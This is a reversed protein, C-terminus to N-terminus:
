TLKEVAERFKEGRDFENLFLGFSAAGPSLLVVDGPGALNKARIVAREMNSFESDIMKEKGIKSLEAKFKDTAEGKLLVLKRVKSTIAEAFDKFDLNKDAGGAILIINGSFSNIGVVAADPITASTDNYYRVKNLERVFELRHPIGKFNKIAECIKGPSIGYAVTAAAAALVNHINHGGRLKIDNLDCIEEQESKTKYVIKGGEM